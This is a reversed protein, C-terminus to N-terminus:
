NCYGSCDSRPPQVFTGEPWSDIRGYSYPGAYRHWHNKNCHYITLSCGGPSQCSEIHCDRSQCTGETVYVYGCAARVLPVLALIAYIVMALAAVLVVVRVAITFRNQSLSLQLKM